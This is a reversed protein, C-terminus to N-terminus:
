HGVRWLKLILLYLSIVAAAAALALLNKGLPGVQREALLREAVALTIIFLVLPLLFAQIVKLTVPPSKSNGLRQYVEQCSDKQGCSDCQQDM